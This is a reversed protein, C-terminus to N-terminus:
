VHFIMFINMVCLGEGAFQKILQDKSESMVRFFIFYYLKYYEIIMFLYNFYIM